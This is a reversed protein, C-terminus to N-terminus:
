DNKWSGGTRIDLVDLESVEYDGWVTVCGNVM